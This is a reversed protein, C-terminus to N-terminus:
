GPINGTGSVFTAGNLTADNTGSNATNVVSTGSGEEMRWWATPSLNLGSTGIDTAVGSNYIDSINTASLESGFIAVEDMLQQRYSGAGRAGIILPNSGQTNFSNFTGGVAGSGTLSGDIYTKLGSGNTTGDYTIGFHYWKDQTPSLFGHQRYIYGGNTGDYLYVRFFNNGIDIFINSSDQHLLPFVTNPTAEQANFWLSFSTAGSLSLGTVQAYDNVGDFSLSYENFVPSVDSDFIKWASGNWLQVADSDTNLVLDGSQPTLASIEAATYTNIDTM